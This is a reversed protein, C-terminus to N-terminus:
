AAPTQHSLICALSILASKEDEPRVTFGHTRAVAILNQLEKRYFTKPLAGDWFSVLEVLQGTHQRMFRWAPANCTTQRRGDGFIDALDQFYQNWGQRLEDRRRLEQIMERNMGGNVRPSRRAGRRHRIAVFFYYEGESEEDVFRWRSRLRNKGILGAVSKSGPDFIAVGERSAGAATVWHKWKDVCLVCPQGSQVYRMLHRYAVPFTRFSRMVAVCGYRRAARAIGDEDTGKATTRTATRLTGEDTTLGLFTLAYRLSAAGCSYKTKQKSFAM